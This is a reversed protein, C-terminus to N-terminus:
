LDPLLTCHSPRSLLHTIVCSMNGNLILIPSHSHVTSVVCRFVDAFEHVASIMEHSVHSHASLMASGRSLRSVEGRVGGGAVDSVSEMMASFLLLVRWLDLERVCDCGNLCKRRLTYVHIYMYIYVHAETYVGTPLACVDM